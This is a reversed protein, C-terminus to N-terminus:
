NNKYHKSGLLKFKAPIYPSIADENESISGLYYQELYRTGGIIDMEDMIDVGIKRISDWHRSMRNGNMLKDEDFEMDYLKRIANTRNALRNEAERRVRLANYLSVSRDSTPLAIVIM